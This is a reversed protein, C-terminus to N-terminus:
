ADKKEASRIARLAVVLRPTVPQDSVIMENIAEICAATYENTSMQPMLAALDTALKATEPTTRFTLQVTYIKPRGPKPKTSM